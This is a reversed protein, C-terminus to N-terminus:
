QHCDICEFKEIKYDIFTSEPTPKHCASCEIEAHRGELPFETEDHDFGRPHWDMPDHCRNCDTVGDIAFQDEHINDHCSICDYELDKFIQTYTDGNASMEFHCERCDVELHKGELAWETLNHDFNVFAWSENVHCATCNNSPYFKKDIFGEHIDQHCDICDTGINRFTWRDEEESVHCAFCPTAIHAGELPFVTEQHQEVTFLSYEFGHQLSHCDICDPSVGNEAFEGRHYDTHCNKCESFDIEELYRGTTHCQKCDEVEQHKGELPYDTLDHNFLSMDNMSSFSTENHCEACNTGFKNNHVDEHCSICDNEAIGTQDQFILKPDRINEHCAFCDITQHKGKLTFDTVNHNFRGRGIFDTFSRASHCSACENLLSSDHPDDHCSVCQNEAIGMQDQFVNEPSTNPSHCDFCSVSSHSDRLPFNTVDHNFSNQGIFTEFSTETHCQDCRGALNGRHPDDHCAVCDNFAIDVFEQFEYDNRTTMPHCEICDVDIHKGKLRFEADDHDFLPAPRFAELDHCSLCDNPLTGQHFDDHCSLCEHQLGLFTDARDQLEPDEIFDPIHCARCDEIRDHAGELKYGTLNHNFNDQDFRAMDFKRGHHDSHCDYCNKSTVEKSAHYGKDRDMLDRIEAHCDLCKTNSVTKGLDHCQTCNSLGELHAHAEALDGPSLQAYAVM